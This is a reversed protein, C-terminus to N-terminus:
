WRFANEQQVSERTMFNQLSFALRAHTFSACSWYFLFTFSSLVSQPLLYIAQFSSLTGIAVFM